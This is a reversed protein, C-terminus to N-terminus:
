LTSEIFLEAQVLGDQGRPYRYILSAGMRTLWGPVRSGLYLESTRVLAMSKSGHFLLRFRVKAHLFAM